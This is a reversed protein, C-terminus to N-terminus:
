KNQLHTQICTRCLTHECPVICCNNARTFCIPCLDEDKIEEQKEDTGDQCCSEIDLMMVGFLEMVGNEKESEM